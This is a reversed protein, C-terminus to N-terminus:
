SKLQERESLLRMAVMGYRSPVARVVAGLNCEMRFFEVVLM